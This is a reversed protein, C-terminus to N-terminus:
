HGAIQPSGLSFFLGAMSASCRLELFKDQKLCSIKNKLCIYRGRNLGLSPLNGRYPNTNCKMDKSSSSNSHNNEPKLLLQCGLLFRDRGM